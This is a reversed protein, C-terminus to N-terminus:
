KEYITRRQARRRACRKVYDFAGGCDRGEPTLPDPRFASVLINKPEALVIIVVVGHVSVLYRREPKHHPHESAEDCERETTRFWRAHGDDLVRAAESCVVGDRLEARVASSPVKGDLQACQKRWDVEPQASIEWWREHAAYYHKLAKERRLDAYKLPQLKM